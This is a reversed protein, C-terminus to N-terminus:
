WSTDASAFLPSCQTLFAYGPPWDHASLLACKIAACCTARPVRSAKPTACANRIGACTTARCPATTSAAFSAWAHARVLALLMLTTRMASWARKHADTTIHDASIESFFHKCHSM